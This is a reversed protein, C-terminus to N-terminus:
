LARFIEESAKCLLNLKETGTLNTFEESGMFYRLTLAMLQDAKAADRQSREQARLYVMACLVLVNLMGLGALLYRALTDMSTPTFLAILPIAASILVSAGILSTHANRLAVGRHAYTRMKPLLRSEIYIREASTSSTAM